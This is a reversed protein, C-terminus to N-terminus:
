AACRRVLWYVGGAVAVVAACAGPHATAVYELTAGAALVGALVGVVKAAQREAATFTLANM